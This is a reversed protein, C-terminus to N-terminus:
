ALFFLSYLFFSASNSKQASLFQYGGGRKMCIYIKGGSQQQYILGSTYETVGHTLEHAVVDADQSLPIFTSGDGDGYTMQTGDWFANNYRRDYHVRSILTMGNDDISDRGHNYFYYNYTAIAYNHAMDIADDGTNITNPSNFVLACNRTKQNCDYTHVARAGLVKPHVACPYGTSIEAYVLDKMQVLQGNEDVGTYGILGKYALCADGTRSNRVVAVEPQSLLKTDAIGPLAKETAINLAVRDHLAVSPVTATELDTLDVYEGNVSSVTGDSEVHVVMAAGEVPFTGGDISATQTFRVHAGGKKDYFTKGTPHLKDQQGPPYKSGFKGEELLGQLVNKAAGRFERCLQIYFAIHTYIFIYQSM